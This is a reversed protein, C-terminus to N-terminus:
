LFSAGRSQGFLELPLLLKGVTLVWLTIWWFFIDTEGKEAWCNEMGSIGFNWVWTWRFVGTELYEWSHSSKRGKFLKYLKQMIQTKHSCGRDIYLFWSICNKFNFGADERERKSVWEYYINNDVRLNQISHIIENFNHKTPRIWNCHLQNTM